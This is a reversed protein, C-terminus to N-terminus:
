SRTTKVASRPAVPATTGYRAALTDALPFAPTQRRQRSYRFLGPSSHHRRGYPCDNDDSGSRHRRPNDGRSYSCANYDSGAYSGCAHHECGGPSSDDDPRAYPGGSHYNCREPRADYDSRSCHGHAYDDSGCPRADHNNGVIDIQAGTTATGSGSVVRAIMYTTSVPLDAFAEYEFSQDVRGANDYSLLAFKISSAGSPTFIFVDYLKDAAPTVGTDVKTATGSGDNTMVQFNTDAADKGIFAANTAASPDGTTTATAALGILHRNGATLANFGFRAHFFFGGIGAANGRCFIALTGALSWGTALNITASALVYGIRRASTLLSTTAPGRATATGSITPASMGIANVVVAADTTALVIGVKGNAFYPQLPTVAGSPGIQAAMYQGARRMAFLELGDSPAHPQSRAFRRLLLSAFSQQRARSGPTVFM